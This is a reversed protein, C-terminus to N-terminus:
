ITIPIGYILTVAATALRTLAARENERIKSDSQIMWNQGTVHITEGPKATFERRGELWFNPDAFPMSLCVGAILLKNILPSFQMNVMESVLEFPVYEWGKLSFIYLTFDHSNTTYGDEDPYAIFLLNEM